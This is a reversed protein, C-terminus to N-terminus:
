PLPMSFRSIWRERVGTGVSPQNEDLVMSRATSIVHKDIDNVFDKKVLRYSSKTSQIVARVRQVHAAIKPEKGTEIADYTAEEYTRISLGYPCEHRVKDFVMMIAIVESAQVKQSDYISYYSRFIDPGVIRCYTQFKKIGSVASAVYLTPIERSDRQYYGCPPKDWITKSTRWRFGDENEICIEGNPKYSVIRRNKAELM